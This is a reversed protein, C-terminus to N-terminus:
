APHSARPTRGAIDTVKLAMKEGDVQVQGVAVIMGNFQMPSPDDPGCDLPVTAGRGLALIQRIPLIASGAIIETEVTISGLVAMIADKQM